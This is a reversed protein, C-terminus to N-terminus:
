TQETKKIKIKGTKDIYLNSGLILNNQKLFLLIEDISKKGLNNFGKLDEKSFKIMEYVRHIKYVAMVNIIRASLQTESINMKLIEQQEDTFNTLLKKSSLEWMEINNKLNENERKLLQIQQKLSWENLASSLDLTEIKDLTEKVSNTIYSLPLELKNSIFSYPYGQLAMEFIMNKREPINMNKNLIRWIKTMIAVSKKYFHRSEDKSSNKM